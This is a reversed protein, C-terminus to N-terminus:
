GNQDRTIREKVARRIQETKTQVSNLENPNVCRARSVDAGLVITGDSAPQPDAGTAQNGTVEIPEDEQLLRRKLAQRNKDKQNRKERRASEIAARSASNPVQGIENFKNNNDRIASKLSSLTPVLIIDGENVSFPNPYDNFFFLADTYNVGIGSAEAVAWPKGAMDAGVTFVDIIQLPTRYDIVSEGLEVILDSDENASEQRVQRRNVILKLDIPM